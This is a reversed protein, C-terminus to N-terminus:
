CRNQLKKPKVWDYIEGYENSLSMKKYNQDPNFCRYNTFEAWSLIKVAEECKCIEYYKLAEEETLDLNKRLKSILFSKHRNYIEKRKAKLQTM